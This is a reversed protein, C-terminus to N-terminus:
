FPLPLSAAKVKMLRVSFRGGIQFRRVLLAKPM